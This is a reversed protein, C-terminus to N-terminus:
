IRPNVFHNIPRPLPQSAEARLPSTKIIIPAAVVVVAIVVVVIEEQVEQVEVVRVIM